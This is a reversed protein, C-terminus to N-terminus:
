KLILGWFGLVGFGWFGLVGFGWTHGHLTYGLSIISLGSRGRVSIEVFHAFDTLAHKVFIDILLIQHLHPRVEKGCSVKQRVDLFRLM